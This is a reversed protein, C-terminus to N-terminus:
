LAPFYAVSIGFEGHLLNWVYTLYQQHLPADTYGFEEKM